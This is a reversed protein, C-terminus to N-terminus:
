EISVNYIEKALCKYLEDNEKKLQDRKQKMLIRWAKEQKLLRERNKRYYAKQYKLRRIPDCGNCHTWTPLLLEKKCIKCKNM